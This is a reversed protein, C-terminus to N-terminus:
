AQFWTKAPRMFILACVAIPMAIQLAYLWVQPGDPIDPKQFPFAVVSIAVLVTLLWRVWNRGVYLSRAGFTICAIATCWILIGTTSSPFGSGFRWIRFLSLLDYAMFLWAAIM